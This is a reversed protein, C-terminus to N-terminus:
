GMIGIVTASTPCSDSPGTREFHFGSSSVSEYTTPSASTYAIRPTMAPIDPLMKPLMLEFGHSYKRCALTNNSAPNNMSSTNVNESGADVM